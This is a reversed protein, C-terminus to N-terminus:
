TISQTRFCPATVSKAAATQVYPYFVCHFTRPKICELLRDDMHYKVSRKEGKLVARGIHLAPTDSSELHKIKYM